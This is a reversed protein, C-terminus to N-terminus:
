YRALDAEFSDSMQLYHHHAIERGNLVHSFIPNDTECLEFQVRGKYGFAVKNTAVHEVEKGRFVYKVSGPPMETVFFPGVGHFDVFYDIADELNRAVYCRQSITRAQWM